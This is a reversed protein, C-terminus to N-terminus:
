LTMWHVDTSLFSARQLYSNYGPNTSLVRFMSWKGPGVFGKLAYCRGKTFILNVHERVLPFEPNEDDRMQGAVLALRDQFLSKQAREEALPEHIACASSRNIRELFDTRCTWAGPDLDGISSLLDPLLVQFHHNQLDRNESRRMAASLTAPLQKHRWSLFRKLLSHRSELRQMTTLATAYGYLEVLMNPPM